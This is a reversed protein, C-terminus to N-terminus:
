PRSTTGAAHARIAEFLAALQDLTEADYSGVFASMLEDHEPTLRPLGTAGILALLRLCYDM